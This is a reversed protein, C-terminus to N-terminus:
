SSSQLSKQTMLIGLKAEGRGVGRRTKGQGKTGVFADFWPKVGCSLVGHLFEYPTEDGGFLNLLHLQISLLLLPNLHTTRKILALATIYTSHYTLQSILHYTHTPTGGDDADSRHSYLSHFSGVNYPACVDELQSLGFARM